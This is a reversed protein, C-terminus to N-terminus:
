KSLARSRELPGAYYAGMVEILSIEGQGKTFAQCAATEGDTTAFIV